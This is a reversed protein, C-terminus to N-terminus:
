ADKSVGRTEPPHQWTQCCSRRSLREAPTRIPARARSRLRANAAVLAFWRVQEPGVTTVTFEVRRDVTALVRILREISFRKLRGHRLDSLRPAGIGLALAAVSTNTQAAITLIADALQRKLAVIPDEM